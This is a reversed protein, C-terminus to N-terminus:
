KGYGRYIEDFPGPARAASSLAPQHDPPDSLSTEGMRAQPSGTQRIPGPDLTHSQERGPENRRNVATDAPVARSMGSGYGSEVRVTRNTHPVDSGAATVIGACAPDIRGAAM